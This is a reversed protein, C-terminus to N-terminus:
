AKELLDGKEKLAALVSCDRMFRWSSWVWVRLARFTQTSPEPSRFGSGSARFGSDMGLPLMALSVAMPEM